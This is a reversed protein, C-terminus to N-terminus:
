FITTTRMRAIKGRTYAVVRRHASAPDSHIVLSVPGLLHRVDDPQM